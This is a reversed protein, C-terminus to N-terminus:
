AVEGTNWARVAAILAGNNPNVGTQRNCFEQAARLVARELRVENEIAGIDIRVAAVVVSIAVRAEAVYEPWEDEVFAAIDAKSLGSPPTTNYAETALARAVQEILNDM